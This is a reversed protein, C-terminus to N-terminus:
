LSIGRDINLGGQVTEKYYDWRVLPFTAENQFFLSPTDEYIFAYKYLPYARLNNTKLMLICCQYKALYVDVVLLARHTHYIMYIM